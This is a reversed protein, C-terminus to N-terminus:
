EEEEGEELSFFETLSEEVCDRIADFNIPVGTVEIRRDHNLEFEVDELSVITNREAEEGISITINHTLDRLQEFTIKPTSQEELISNILFLVDDKSFISSVSSQVQAIANEKTIKIQNTM